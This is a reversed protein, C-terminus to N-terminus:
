RSQQRHAFSVAVPSSTVIAQIDGSTLSPSTKNVFTIWENLDADVPLNLYSLQINRAINSIFSLDTNAWTKAFTKASDLSVISSAQGSVVEPLIVVATASLVISFISSTKM